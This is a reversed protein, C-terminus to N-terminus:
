RDNKWGGNSGVIPLARRSVKPADDKKCVVHDTMPGAM